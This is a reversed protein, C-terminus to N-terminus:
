KQGALGLALKMAQEKTGVCGELQADYVEDLVRKFLPGPTLGAATLDDGTILPAPAYETRELEALRQELEGRRSAVQPPLAALLARSLRATPRALFRKLVAVTPAANRLLLELGHLTGETQDSEENSIRLAQRAGKIYQRVSLDPWDSLDRRRGLAHEVAVAALALGFPIPEGPAVREFVTARREAVDPHAAAGPMRVFRFLVGDLAYRRMMEWATARTPPTLMLRLEEAIREPSIRALHQAHRTIAEDTAPEIALGFRAAFRVARLLRLHDEAFREDPNGIARLVRDKLDAQGGVYDIVRDEVPDYFLGNITFDRRQADQEATAFRVGEPRRGDRYELDTRFTAVEIQSRRQRVLIVGFAAGVADTRTFLERVRQPPADTAVDYDKPTLGLLQDRVCGGAFYAVHGAERLRRVVALADDRDSRPRPPQDPADSM